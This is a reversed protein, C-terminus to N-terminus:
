LGSRQARVGPTMSRAVQILHQHHANNISSKNCVNIPVFATPIKQREAVVKMEYLHGSNSAIRIMGEQNPILIMVPQSHM